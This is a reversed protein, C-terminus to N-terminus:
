RKGGNSGEEPKSSILKMFTQGIRRSLDMTVITMVIVAGAVDPGKIAVPQQHIVPVKPTSAIEGAPPVRVIDHRLPTTM